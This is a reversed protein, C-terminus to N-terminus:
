LVTLEVDSKGEGEFHEENSRTLDPCKEQQGFRRNRSMGGCSCCVLFLYIIIDIDIHGSHDSKNM